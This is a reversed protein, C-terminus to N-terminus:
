VFHHINSVIVKKLKFSTKALKLTSIIETVTKSESDTISFKANAVAQSDWWAKTCIEFKQQLQKWVKVFSLVFLM